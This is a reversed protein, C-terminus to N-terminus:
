VKIKWNFDQNQIWIKQNLKNILQVCIRAINGDLSREVKTVKADDFYGNGNKVQILENVYFLHNQVTFTDMNKNMLGDLIDDDKQPKSQVKRKHHKKYKNNTYRNNHDMNPKANQSNETFINVIAEVNKMENVTNTLKTKVDDIDEGINDYIRSIEHSIHDTSHKNVTINQTNNQINNTNVNIDYQMLKIQDMLIDYKSKLDNLELKTEKLEDMTAKLKINAGDLKKKTEMLIKNTRKLESIKEPINLTINFATLEAEYKIHIQLYTANDDNMKHIKFGIDHKNNQMSVCYQIVSALKDAEIHKLGLEQKIMECDNGDYIKTYVQKSNKDMFNLEFLKGNIDCNKQDDGSFNVFTVQFRQYLMETKSKKAEFGEGEFGSKVFM